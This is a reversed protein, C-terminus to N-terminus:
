MPNKKLFALAKENKPLAPSFICILTIDEDSNNVVMHSEGEEVIILTRPELEFDEGDIVINGGDIFFMMEKNTEHIHSDTRSRPKLTVADISLSDHNGAEPSVMFQAYRVTNEEGVQFFPIQSLIFQKM